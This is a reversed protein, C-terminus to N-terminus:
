IPRRNLAQKFPLSVNYENLIRDYIVHRSVLEGETNNLNVEWTMTNLFVTYPFKPIIADKIEKSM